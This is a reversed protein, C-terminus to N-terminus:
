CGRLGVLVHGSDSDDEIRAAAAVHAVWAGRAAERVGEAVVADDALRARAVLEVADRFVELRQRDVHEADAAAVARVVDRDRAEEVDVARAVSGCSAKRRPPVIFVTAFETPTAAPRGSPM